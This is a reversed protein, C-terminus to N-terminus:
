CTVIIDYCIWLGEWEQYFLICCWCIAKKIFKMPSKWYRIVFFSAFNIKAKFWKWNQKIWYLIPIERSISTVWMAIYNHGLSVM